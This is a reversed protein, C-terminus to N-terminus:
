IRLMYLLEARGGTEATRSGNAGLVSERGVLWPLFSGAQPWIVSVSIQNSPQNMAMQM